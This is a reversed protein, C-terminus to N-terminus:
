QRCCYINLNASHSEFWAKYIHLLTMYVSSWFVRESHWRVGGFIAATKHGRESLQEGPQTYLESASVPLKHQAQLGESVSRTHPDYMQGM